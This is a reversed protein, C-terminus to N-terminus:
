AALKYRLVRAEIQRNALGSVAQVRETHLKRHHRDSQTLAQYNRLRGITHEVEIRIKAFARNYEKDAGSHEGGRPKRRPTSGGDPLVKGIGVYALDGMVGVGKPVEELM